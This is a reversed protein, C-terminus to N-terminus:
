TVKQLKHRSLLIKKKLYFRLRSRAFSEFDVREPKQEEQFEAAFHESTEEEPMNFNKEAPVQSSRSLAIRNYENILTEIYKLYFIDLIHMNLKFSRNVSDLKPTISRRLEANNILGARYSAVFTDIDALLGAISRIVGDRKRISKGANKKLIGIVVGWIISCVVVGILIGSILSIESPGM